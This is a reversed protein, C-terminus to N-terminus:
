KLILQMFQLDLWRNFKYGSQRLIGGDTFGFKKHFAISGANDADICGVMCHLGQQKALEILKALLLNGIGKGTNGDAVYVSHEVTYKFGEKFRFTGYSGYGVVINDQLAVIVPWNVTQKDAFWQQMDAPTKADYDYIATSNLINFNMIDLIAPLHLPIATTITTEMRCLYNNIKAVFFPWGYPYGKSLM